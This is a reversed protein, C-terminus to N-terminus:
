IHRYFSSHGCTLPRSWSTVPALSLGPFPSLSSLAEVPMSIDDNTTVVLLIARLTGNVVNVTLRCSTLRLEGPLLRVDGGQVVAEVGQTLSGLPLEFLHEGGAGDARHLVHGLAVREGLHVGGAEGPEPGDLAAQDEAPEIVGVLAPEVDALEAQGVVLLVAQEDVPPGGHRLREVAGGRRRGHAHGPAAVQLGLAAVDDAHVVVQEVEVREGVVVAGREVTLGRQQGREVLPAGAAHAVDDGGDLGLLVADDAAVEVAHEHDLASGAGALGDHGQM